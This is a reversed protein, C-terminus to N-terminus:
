LSSTEARNLHETRWPTFHLSSDRQKRPLKRRAHQRQVTRCAQTKFQHQVIQKRHLKFFYKTSADGQSLYKARSWLRVLRDRTHERKRKEVELELIEALQELTPAPPLHEHLKKLKTGLEKIKSIQARQERQLVKMRERMAAWRKHYAKIPDDTCETAEEWVQKLSSHVEPQAMLHADFKFYLKFKIGRPLRGGLVLDITVLMHDSITYQAQHDIVEVAEFWDGDTPLYIRDITSWRFESNYNIYRTYHPGSEKLQVSPHLLLATGGGGRGQAAILTYTPAINLAAIKMRNNTLKTEQLALVLPKELRVFNKVKIKRHEDNLGGVNWSAIRLRSPVQTNTTSPTANM